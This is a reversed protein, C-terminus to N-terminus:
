RWEKVKKILELLDADSISRNGRAFDVLEQHPVRRLIAEESLSDMEEKSLSELHRVKEFIATTLKNKIIDRNRTQGRIKTLGDLDHVHVWLDKGPTFRLLAILIGLFMALAIYGPVLPIDFSGAEIIYPKRTALSSVIGVTDKLKAEMGSADYRSSELIINGGEPLFLQALEEIFALNQAGPKVMRDDSFIEPDSVFVYAGYDRQNWGQRDPTTIRDNHMLIGGDRDLYIVTALAAEGQNDGLDCEHNSNFDLCARETSNIVRIYDNPLQLATPKNTWIGQTFKEDGTDYTYFVSGPTKLPPSIRGAVIPYSVNQQFSVDWLEGTFFTVGYEQSFVNAFGSDDAILVKGGAQVFDDIADVEVDSYEKEPGIILLLTMGPDVLGDIILPTSMVVTVNYTGEETSCQTVDEGPTGRFCDLLVTYQNSVQSTGDEPTPELLPLAVYGVLVMILFIGTIWVRVPNKAM